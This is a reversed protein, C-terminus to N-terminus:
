NVSTFWAIEGIHPDRGLHVWDHRIKEILAVVPIDFVKFEVGTFAGAVIQKRELLRQLMLLTRDVIVSGEFGRDQFQRVISRLDVYDEGCEALFEKEINDLADASSADTM